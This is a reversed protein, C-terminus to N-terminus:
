GVLWKKIGENKLYYDNFLMEKSFCWSYDCLLKVM